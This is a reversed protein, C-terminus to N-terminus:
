QFMENEKKAEIWQDCKTRTLKIEDPTLVTDIIDKLPVSGELVKTALLNNMKADIGYKKATEDDINMEEKELKYYTNEVRNGREALIGSIIERMVKNPVNSDM